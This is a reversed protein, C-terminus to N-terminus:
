CPETEKKHCKDFFACPRNYDHCANYNAPYSHYQSVVEEDSPQVLTAYDIMNDLAEYMKAESFEWTLDQLYGTGKNFVTYGLTDIVSGTHNSLYLYAYLYLQLATDAKTAAYSQGSTKFDRLSKRGDYAGYYDPTGQLQVGKYEGHLRSEAFELSYRGAHRETFIRILKAGLSALQEWNYRGYEVEKDRYSEWYISFTALGDQGTLVANIASHLASGFLLDSSDPGVPVIRDIVVYKFKRLCQLALSYHSYSWSFDSM